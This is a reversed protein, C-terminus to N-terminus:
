MSGPFQCATALANGEGDDERGLSRAVKVVVSDPVVLHVREALAMGDVTAAAQRRRKKRLFLCALGSM